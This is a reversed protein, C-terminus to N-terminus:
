PFYLMSASFGVSCSSPFTGTSHFCLPTNVYVIVSSDSVRFLNLPCSFYPQSGLEGPSLPVMLGQPAPWQGQPPQEELQWLTRTSVMQKSQLVLVKLEESQPEWLVLLAGLLSCRQPAWTFLPLSRGACVQDPSWPFVKVWVAKWPRFQLLAPQVKSQLTVQRYCDM